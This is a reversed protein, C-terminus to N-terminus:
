SHSRLRQYLDRFRALRPALRAHRQPDPSFLDHHQIRGGTLGPLFIPAIVASDNASFEALLRAEDSGAIRGEGDLLLKVESTGLGIRLFM